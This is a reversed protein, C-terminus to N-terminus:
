RAHVVAVIYSSGGVIGGTGRQIVDFRFRAGPHADAPAQITIAATIRKGPALEVGRVTAVPGAGAIYVRSRDLGAVKRIKAEREDAPLAEREVMAGVQELTEGLGEVLEGVRGVWQGLHERLSTELASYHEVRWGAFAEEEPLALRLPPLMLSLHGEMFQKRDFVLDVVATEQGANHFDILMTQPAHLWPGERHAILPKAGAVVLHLNRHAVHKDQMTLQDLNTNTATLQDAATTTTIFAAACVHDHGAPLALTSLDVDFEVVQPTRAELTGPLTRYPTMPDAFRWGTGGLWASTDGATIHAAYGVPLAPLGASADALLLLVRVQSGPLATQGRNHVEVFIRDTGSEDATEVDTSPQVYDGINAAFDLFDPPTNLTPLGTLSGRRVKIDASMWHYVLSGKATPDAAGEVWPYRAGGVIRGTDAYNVRLYINPDQAVMADLPIEWIGRGDTAARLLRTRAHIELTNIAAEPLGQSFLAWSWTTAGTRTGKWCGVDTGVYLYQPTAVSPTPPNAPDVVVTRTPTDVTARSLGASQWSAGDFHWVHDSGNGALTMYITGASADDVALGFIWRSAPLGATTIATKSWSAGSYDFRWVQQTTAAFIRTASAVAVGFIAHGDLVDQALNAPAAAYPDTGTPLTVWKGSEGWTTTLWLRNTGVVALTPAIGSPSVAMAGTLYGLESGGFPPPFNASSWAGGVAGDACRYISYGSLYCMLQYPDNTDVILGAGDGGLTEIGAEEGMVREIGNDWCGAFVVADTDPRQGLANVLPTALGTNQPTFSGLAGSASSQFLGGDCGVWVNAADHGVGGLKTAFTVAHVDPHVGRGIWTPDAAPTATNAPNFPFVYSGPGGTLTGKYLSADGQTADGALYITNADSPDVAVALDFKYGGQGESFLASQPVSTVVQFAGSVLRYLTASDTLAYVVSPDSEGAALGVGTSTALSAGAVATWASFDASVYVRDGPFAAYFRKSTGSGAVVLDTVTGYSNFPAGTVQQWTTYPASVPRRYLGRDTAAYARTADDPDIVLRYIRRGSLNTAELTWTGPAGGSASYKIGIGDPGEGTGVFVVDTAASAGFRVAIAGVTLADGDLGTTYSPSVAYDDLPDWRMGGNGSFWVGGVSTGAYVRMGGPGVVVDSVRGSVPPAGTAGSRAIVSPGLPTWNVSGSPGPALETIFGTGPENEAGVTPHARTREQARELARRQFAARLYLDDPAATQGNAATMARWTAHTLGTRSQQTQATPQGAVAVRIPDSGEGSASM